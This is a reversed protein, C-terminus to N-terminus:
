AAYVSAAGGTCEFNSPRFVNALVSLATYGFIPGCRLVEFVPHMYRRRYFRAGRKQYGGWFFFSLYSSGGFGRHMGLNCLQLVVGVLPAVVPPRRDAYVHVLARAGKRSFSVPV